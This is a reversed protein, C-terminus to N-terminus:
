YTHKLIVNSFKVRKEQFKGRSGPTKVVSRYPINPNPRPGSPIKSQGKIDPIVIIRPLSETRCIPYDHVNESNERYPLFGCARRRLYFRHYRKAQSNYYELRKQYLNSLHQWNKDSINQRKPSEKYNEELSRKSLYEMSRMGYYYNNNSNDTDSSFYWNSNKIESTSHSTNTTVSVPNIREKNEIADANM